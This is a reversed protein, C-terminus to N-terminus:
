AVAELRGSRGGDFRLRVSEHARAWASRVWRPEEKLEFEPIAGLLEEIAVRGELRALAAGLCFHLGHGLALHRRANPRHVDFRDPEPFFREDRNAAAYILRLESGAPMTVGHMTVDCLLRRPLVQTPSEIRMMEEVANSIGKPDRVLERREEPHRALMVSGNAILNTTTDNGALVLQFCFGLLEEKGLRRGGEIEAHLLGTMLDDQPQRRREELLGEFVEAIAMAAREVAQDGNAGIGILSETWELMPERTEEPIGLMQGIAMSPLHHAYEAMLDCEGRGSFSALLERAKSRLFPELEAIRRPTFATTVLARLEDHLPADIQQLIPLSSLSTSVGENSFRKSDGLVELVDHYRTVAYFHGAPDVYLPAEDRMRRYIDISRDAFDPAGIDYLPRDM